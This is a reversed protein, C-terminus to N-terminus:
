YICGCLHLPTITYSDMLKSRFSKITKIQLSSAPAVSVNFVMDDPSTINFFKKLISVDLESVLRNCINAFKVICKIKKSRPSVCKIEPFCYTHYKRMDDKIEKTSAIMEYYNSRMNVLRAVHCDDDIMIEIYGVCESTNTKNNIMHILYIIIEPKSLGYHFKYNETKLPTSPVSLDGDKLEAESTSEYEDDVGVVGIEALDTIESDTLTTYKAGTVTKSEPDTKGRNKARLESEADPYGALIRTLTSVSYTRVHAM